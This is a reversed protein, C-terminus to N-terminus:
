DVLECLVAGSTVVEGVAATLGKVTGAKHATLPQEMKMAELVVVLDGADVRDGDAVAIKVITGQMPSTLADGGVAAGGGRSGSRKPAPRRWGRGGRGRRVGRGPRGAPDGGAAPRRGRGGRDGAAVARRADAVPGAYPQLGGAWETEIWRTHVSFPEDTFAPDRVVARHFPLVTPM